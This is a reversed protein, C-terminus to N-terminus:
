NQVTPLNQTLWGSFRQIRVPQTTIHTPYGCELPTQQFKIRCYYLGVILYFVNAIAEDDRKNGSPISQQSTYMLSVM